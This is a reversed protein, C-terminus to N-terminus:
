ISCCRSWSDPTSKSFYFDVGSEMHFGSHRQTCQQLMPESFRPYIKKELDVGSETHFGSHRQTLHQLMPEM